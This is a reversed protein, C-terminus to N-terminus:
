PEVGLEAGCDCYDAGFSRACWPRHPSVAAAGMDVMYPAGQKCVSQLARIESPWFVGRRLSTTDMTYTQSFPGSTQQTSARAGAGAEDWRLVATLLLGRAAERQVESLGEGGLCPAVLIAQATAANILAAAKNVPIDAFPELDSPILLSPLM